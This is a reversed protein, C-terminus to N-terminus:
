MASNKADCRQCDAGRFGHNNKRSKLAHDIQLLNTDFKITELVNRNNIHYEQTGSYRVLHDYLILVGEFGPQRGNQLGHLYLLTNHRHEM